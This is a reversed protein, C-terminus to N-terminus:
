GRIKLLGSQRLLQPSRLIGFGKNKGGWESLDIDKYGVQEWGFKEYFGESNMVTQVFVKEDSLNYRDFAWELLKTGIGQRQASPRVYLSGLVLQLMLKESSATYRARQNSLM